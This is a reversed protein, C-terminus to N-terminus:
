DEMPHTLEAIPVGARIQRAVRGIRRGRERQYRLRMADSHRGHREIIRIRDGLHHALRREWEGTDYGEDLDFLEFTALRDLPLHAAAVGSDGSVAQMRWGETFVASEDDRLQARAYRATLGPRVAKAVSWNLGFMRSRVDHALLEAGLRVIAGMEDREFRRVEDEDPRERPFPCVPVIFQSHVMTRGREPALAAFVLGKMAGLSVGTWFMHGLDISTTKTLHDCILHAVHASAAFTLGDALRAIEDTDDIGPASREPGFVLGDLGAEMTKLLGHMIPGEPGLSLAPATGVTLHILSGERAATSRGHIVERQLGEDSVVRYRTVTGFDRHNTNRLREVSSLGASPSWRPGMADLPPPPKTSM